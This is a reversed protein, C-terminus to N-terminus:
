NHPGTAKGEIPPVNKATLYRGSHQEMGGGRVRGCTDKADDLNGGAKENSSRKRCFDRM